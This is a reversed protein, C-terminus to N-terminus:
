ETIHLVPLRSRAWGDLEMEKSERCRVSKLGTRRVPIVRRWVVCKAVSNLSRLWAISVHSRGAVTTIIISTVHRSATNGDPPTSPADVLFYKVSM